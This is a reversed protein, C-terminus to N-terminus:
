LLASRDGARFGLLPAEIGRGFAIVKFLEGMEAPSLLKQVGACAPAYRRVDQPDLRALEELLGCNMLFRAQQTYGLLALGADAAADALASFDVHATIDQLGPLCLPDPHAHHRYHCMLTGGSRQPHYYERRPFGYDVFIAAGRQLMTGLSRILGRAALHMETAYDDPLELGVAAALLEGRAPRSTWAFGAGDESTTVGLEHVEGGRKRILGVPLADLVENGLIVADAAEPLRELWGIRGVLEPVAAQLTAAQRARLDASLEVIEYRQPLRELRKLTSLIDAAMRGSGAGLEIVRPCDLEILQAVQRALAASFFASIEPATVFDGGAGFKTAGASYYGLGPAHLALAMYRDFPLFGATEIERAIHARVRRMHAIAAAPPAPLHRLAPPFLDALADTLIPPVM